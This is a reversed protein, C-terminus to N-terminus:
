SAKAKKEDLWADVDYFYIRKGIRISPPLDRRQRRAEHISRPTRDLTAALHDITVLDGPNM